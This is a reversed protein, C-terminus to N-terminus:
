FAARWVTGVLFLLVIGSVIAVFLSNINFGTVGTPSILSMLFGGILTGVVGVGINTMVGIPVNRRMNVSAIWGALAGFLIWIIINLLM